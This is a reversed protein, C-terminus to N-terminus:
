SLYMKQACGIKFEMTGFSPMAYILAEYNLKCSVSRFQGWSGNELVACYWADSM